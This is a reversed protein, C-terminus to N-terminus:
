EDFDVLNMKCYDRAEQCAKSSPSMALFTDNLKAVCKIITGLRDEDTMTTPMNTKRRIEKEIASKGMGWLHINHNLGKLIVSKASRYTSPMSKASTKEKYKEEYYKFCDRPPVSAVGIVSLLENFWGDTEEKHVNSVDELLILTDISKEIATVSLGKEIKEM